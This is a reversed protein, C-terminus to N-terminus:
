GNGDIRKRRFYCKLYAQAGRGPAVKLPSSGLNELDADERVLVFPGVLSVNQVGAQEHEVPDYDLACGWHMWTIVVM